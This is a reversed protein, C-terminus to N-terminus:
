KADDGQEKNYSKQYYDFVSHKIGNTKFYKGTRCNIVQIVTCSKCRRFWKGNNMYEWKFWHLCM